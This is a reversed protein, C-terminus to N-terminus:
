DRDQIVKKEKKDIDLQKLEKKLSDLDEELKEREEKDDDSM